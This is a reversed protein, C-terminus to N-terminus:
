RGRVISRSLAGSSAQDRRVAVSRAAFKVEGWWEKGSRM